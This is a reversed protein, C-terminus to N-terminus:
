SSEDVVEEFGIAVSVADEVTIAGEGVADSAAISFLPSSSLRGVSVLESEVVGGEGVDFTGEDVGMASEISETLESATADGLSDAWGTAVGVEDDDSPTCITTSCAAEDVTMDDEVDEAGLGGVIVGTLVEGYSHINKSMPAQDPGSVRQTTRIEHQVITFQTIDTYQGSGRSVSSHTSCALM